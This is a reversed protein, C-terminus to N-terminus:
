RDNIGALIFVLPANWNIAIENSAYSEQDDLYMRAPPGDPLKKMAPDQRGANPGGSLLGPWPEPNKDAGSPRHHPHRYPNAGVQTVWSLSFTNRGLLYHANDTAAQVFSADRQMQNAILLHMAYNAAVSNSGWIYDKPTLSLRYPHRDSRAVIERATALTRQKIAAALQADGGSGKDLAYSWLAMPAVNAWAPPDTATLKPVFKPANARIYVDFAKDRTTRWLETAAWLREDSCDGDGYEGTVVGAPNKFAVAPHAETWRWADRAARENRTAFAADYQRYVRAAIAAVAALDATACTSKFPSASTGIVYSTTTDAEPMIFAPFRESTQKHWVGGDAPDQMSLMWELNWRIEDLVDPTSNKSEPIDLSGGV